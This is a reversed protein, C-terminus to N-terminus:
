NIYKAVAAFQMAFSSIGILVDLKSSEITMLHFFSFRTNKTSTRFLKYYLFNTIHINRVESSQPSKYVLNTSKFTQLVFLTAGYVGLQKIHTSPVYNHHDPVHLEYVVNLTCM